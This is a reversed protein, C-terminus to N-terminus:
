NAENKKQYILSLLHAPSTENLAQIQSISLTEM